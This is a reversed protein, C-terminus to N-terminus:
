VDLKWPYRMPRSLMANVQSDDSQHKAPDWKFKKGTRLAITGLHCVIVSGGGVIESTIPKERSRVCDIFNQMHNTPRTPYIMKADPKLPSTPSKPRRVSLAFATESVLLRTDLRWLLLSWLAWSMICRIWPAVGVLPGGAERIALSGWGGSPACASTVM